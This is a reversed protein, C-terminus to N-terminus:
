VSRLQAIERGQEIMREMVMELMGRYFYRELDPDKKFVDNLDSRNLSLLVSDKKAIVSATRKGNQLLAVEGIFEGPGKFTLNKGKLMIELLGSAVVYMCEGDNGEQFIVSGAKFEEVECVAAVHSKQIYDFYKSLPTAQILKIRDSAQISSDQNSQKPFQVEILTSDDGSLRACQEIASKFDQGAIMAQVLQPFGQNQLVSYVGDSCVILIDNPQFEIKLLDPTTFRTGLAKALAKSMPNKQADEPTMGMKILEDYGNHDKTLQYVKGARYLYARSDGIHGMIAFRGDIWLAICTTHANKYNANAAAAKILNSQADAFASLMLEQMKQLRKPGLLQAGNKALFHNAAILREQINKAVIESAYRGNGGESVGDCLIYVGQEQNVLAYDDNTKHRSGMFSLHNVKPQIM